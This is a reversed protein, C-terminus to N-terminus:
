HPRFDFKGLSPDLEDQFKLAPAGAAPTATAAAKAPAALKGTTNYIARMWDKKEIKTQAVFIHVTSQNMNSLILGNAPSDTGQPLAVALNISGKIKYQRPPPASPTKSDKSGKGRGKKSSGASVQECYLFKDNFLFCQYDIEQKVDM